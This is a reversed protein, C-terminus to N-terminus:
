PGDGNMRLVTLKTSLGPGFWLEIQRCMRRDTRSLSEQLVGLVVPATTVRNANAYQRLILKSMLWEDGIRESLMKEIETANPGALGM